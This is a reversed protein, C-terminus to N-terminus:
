TPDRPLGLTGEALANKQIETTGGAIALGPSGMVERATAQAAANGEEYAAVRPGLMTAKLATLERTNVTAQLKGISSAAPGGGDAASAWRLATLRQIAVGEYLQALRQRLLPEPEGDVEHLLKTLEVALMPYFSLTVAGREAGLIFHAAKWGHDVEGVVGSASVRVDDLFIENFDSTGTIQRLPRVTIGPSTMDILLLTIGRHKPAHSNTRALLIGMEAVQAFSSWVKQGNVVFEDGDRVATTALAGLDSGADPESFLQCWLQEGRLIAPLYRERQEETGLAILLPGVMNVGVYTVHFPVAHRAMEEALILRYGVPLDSGGYSAPWQAAAYGAALLRRQWDLVERVSEPTISDMQPPDSDDIWCRFEARFQEEEADFALRGIGDLLGRVGTGHGRAM